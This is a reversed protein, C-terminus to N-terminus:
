NLTIQYGTETTMTMKVIQCAMTTTMMMKQMLSVMEMRTSMEELCIQSRESLRIWTILSAMMTTTTMLIIRSEMATQTLKTKTWYGTTTIMRMKVTPSVMEMMTKMSTTRYETETVTWNRITPFEMQTIMPTWYGTTTIM